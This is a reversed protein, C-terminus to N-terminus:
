RFYNKLNAPVNHSDSYLARDVNIYGGKTHHMNAMALSTRSSEVRSVRHRWAAAAAAVAAM